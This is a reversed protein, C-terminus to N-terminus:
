TSSNVAANKVTGTSDSCEGKVRVAREFAIDAEDTYELVPNGCVGTQWAAGFATCSHNYVTLTITHPTRENM